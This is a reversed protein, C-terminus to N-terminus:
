VTPRPTRATPRMRGDPPEIGDVWVECLDPRRLDGSCRSCLLECNDAEHPRRLNRAVLHGEHPALPRGCRQAGGAHYCWPRRCECKGEARSRVEAAVDWGNCAQNM